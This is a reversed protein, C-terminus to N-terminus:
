PPPPPPPSPPLFWTDRLGQRSRVKTHGLYTRMCRKDGVVDWIKVNGDLGASLLLHGHQPFFRIANVGKTHGSWTHVQRKPLFCAEPEKREAKRPEVWSRGQYDAEAKGHFISSEGKGEAVEKEAKDAKMQLCPLAPCPLCAPSCLASQPPCHESPWCRCRGWAPLAAWATLCAQSVFGNVVALRQAGGGAHPRVEAVAAGALGLCCGAM